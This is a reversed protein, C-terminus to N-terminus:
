LDACCRFGTSYDWHTVGHATTAYSCGPGNVVTDVYFGGRFTGGPDATWEHLNGMMDLAGEASVCGAHSGTAALADPLQNICPHGLESWIWDATTEFYQVAPHCVRDDNCVGPELVDGYPYTNGDPGRCARLWEGDTCLRKGALACAAAAQVQNIYGQPVAGPVSRAEVARNGPNAYPSWPAPAGEVLVLMAEWRDICFGDVRTMGAPCGGLGAPEAPVGNVLPLDSATCEIPSTLCDGASAVEEVTLLYPGPLALGDGNVWTDAVIWFSGAALDATLAQNDRAVCADASPTDLLHVDIDVQDGSVDDVAVRIRAPGDLDLRYVVEGGGEDTGPACPAYAPVAAPASRTDGAHTFPLGPIPIPRAFTGEPEGAADPGPDPGGDPAGGAADPGGPEGGGLEASCATQAVACLVCFVAVGPRPGVPFM